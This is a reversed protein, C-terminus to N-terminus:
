AQRAAKEVGDHPRFSVAKEQDQVMCHLFSARVEATLPSTTKMM